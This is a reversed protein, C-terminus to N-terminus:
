YESRSGLTLRAEHLHDVPGRVRCLSILTDNGYALSMLLRFDVSKRDTQRAVRSGRCTTCKLSGVGPAETGRSKLVIGSYEMIRVAHWINVLGSCIHHRAFSLVATMVIRTFTLTHALGTARIARGGGGGSYEGIENLFDVARIPRWILNITWSHYGRSYRRIIEAANHLEIIWEMVTAGLAPPGAQSHVRTCACNVCRHCNAANPLYMCKATCQTVCRFAYM